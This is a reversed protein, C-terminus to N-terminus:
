ENGISTRKLILKAVDTVCSNHEDSHRTVILTEQACGASTAKTLVGDMRGRGTAVARPQWRQHSQTRSREIRRRPAEGVDLETDGRAERARRAVMAAMTTGRAMQHQILVEHAGDVAGSDISDTYM